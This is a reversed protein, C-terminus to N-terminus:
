QPQRLSAPAYPEEDIGSGPVITALAHGMQAGVAALSLRGAVAESWAAGLAELRPKDDLLSRMQAMATDPNRFDVVCATVGDVIFERFPAGKNVVLPLSYAAAELLVKPLGDLDSIYVFVQASAYLPQPDTEGVIHIHDSGCRRRVEDSFAQAYSGSGAITWDLGASRLASAVVPAAEALPKVKQWFNMNTVTLAMPAVRRPGQPGAAAAHINVVHVPKGPGVAARCRDALHQSIPLLASARELGAREIRHNVARRAAVRWPTRPSREVTAEAWLDGKV